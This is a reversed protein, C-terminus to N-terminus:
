GDWTVQVDFQADTPTATSNFLQVQLTTATKSSVRCSIAGGTDTPIVSVVYAGGGLDIDSTINYTGASGRVCTLQAGVTNGFNKSGVSTFSAWATQNQGVVLKWASWTGGNNHRMWQKYENERVLGILVQSSVTGGGTSIYTTVFGQDGIVYDSPLGGTASEVNYCSNVAIDDLNGNYGVHLGTDAYGALRETFAGGDVVLKWAGWTTNTEHRIWVKFSNGGGLGLLTQTCWNPSTYVNTTVFANDAGAFDAPLNTSTGTVLYVSNDNIANLDGVYPIHEGTDAYGALKADFVDAANNVTMTMGSYIYYRVYTNVPRSEGDGANGSNGTYNPLNVSHTHSNSTNGTNSASSGSTTLTGTNTNSDTNFRGKVGNPTSNGAANVTHTHAMSHTHNTSQGASTVAGHDHAISHTHSLNASDQDTGVNDGTVGDGRDTRSAADPDLGRGADQGRLFTGRYDPLNFTTSGDGNGYIVGIKAFLIPYESRSVASGDCFLWDPAADDTAYAAVMGTTITAQIQGQSGTSLWRTKAADWEYTVGNPQTSLEGDVPANPFNLAM